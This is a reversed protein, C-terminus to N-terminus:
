NEHTGLLFAEPDCESYNNASIKVNRESATQCKLEYKKKVTEWFFRNEEEMKWNPCNWALKRHVRGLGMRKRVGGGGGGMEIAGLVMNMQSKTVYARRASGANKTQRQLKARNKKWPM